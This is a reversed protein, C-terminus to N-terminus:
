QLSNLWDISTGGFRKDWQKNGLSDIKVIWYDRVGWSPQTKDGSIGSWSYGGM